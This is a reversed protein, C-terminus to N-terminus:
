LGGHYFIIESILANIIQIVVYQQCVTQILEVTWLCLLAFSCATFRTATAGMTLLLVTVM